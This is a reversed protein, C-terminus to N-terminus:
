GSVLARRYVRLYLLLMSRHQLGIFGFLNFKGCASAAFGTPTFTTPLYPSLFLYITRTESLLFHLCFVIRAPLTSLYRRSIKCKRRLSNCISRGFARLKSLLCHLSCTQLATGSNCFHSM